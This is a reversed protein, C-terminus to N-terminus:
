RYVASYLIGDGMEEEEHTNNTNFKLVFYGKLESSSLRLLIIQKYM